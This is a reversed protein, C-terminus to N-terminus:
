VFGRLAGAQFVSHYLVLQPEGPKQFEFAEAIESEKSSYKGNAALESVPHEFTVCNGSLSGGPIVAFFVAAANNEVHQAVPPINQIIQEPLNLRHRACASSMNRAPPIFGAPRVVDTGIVGGIGRKLQFASDHGM